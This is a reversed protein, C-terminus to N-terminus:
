IVRLPPRRTDSAPPTTEPAAAGAVPSGHQATNRPLSARVHWVRKGGEPQGDPQFEGVFSGEIPLPSRPDEPAPFLATVKDCFDVCKSM